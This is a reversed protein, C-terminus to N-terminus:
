VTYEKDLAADYESRKDEFAAKVIPYAVSNPDVEELAAEFEEVEKGLKALEAAIEVGTKVVKVVPKRVRKPKAEEVVEVVEIEVENIHNTMKLERGKNQNIKKNILLTKGSGRAFM